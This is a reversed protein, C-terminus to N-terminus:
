QETKCHPCEKWHLLIIRNCHSNRCRKPPPGKPLPPLLSPPHPRKPQLPTSPVTTNHSGSARSSKCPSEEPERSRRFRKIFPIDDRLERLEEAIPECDFIGRFHIYYAFADPFRPFTANDISAFRYEHELRGFYRILLQDTGPRTNLLDIGFRALRFTVLSGLVAFAEAGSRRIVEQKFKSPSRVLRMYARYNGSWNSESLMANVLEVYELKESDSLM